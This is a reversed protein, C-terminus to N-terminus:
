GDKGGKKGKEKQDKEVKLKLSIPIVGGTGRGMNPKIPKGERKILKVRAKVKAKTKGAM